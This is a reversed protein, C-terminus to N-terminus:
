AEREEKWKLTGKEETNGKSKSWGLGKPFKRTDTMEVYDKSM